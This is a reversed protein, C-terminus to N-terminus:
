ELGLLEEETLRSQETIANTLETILNPPLKRLEGEDIGNNNSQAVQILTGDTNRLNRWSVIGRKCTEIKIRGSNMKMASKGVKGDSFDSYNFEMEDEALTAEVGDMARLTFVPWLEKPIDYEGDANKERYIKPVYLFKADLKFAMFGKLKKKMEETLIVDKQEM